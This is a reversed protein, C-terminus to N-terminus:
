DWTRLLSMLLSRFCYCVVEIVETAGTDVDSTVVDPFSFIAVLFLIGHPLVSCVDCGKM